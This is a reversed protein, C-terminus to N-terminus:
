IVGFSSILYAGIIAVIFLISLATVIRNRKQPYTLYYISGVLGIPPFYNPTFSSHPFLIKAITYLVTIVTIALLGILRRSTRVRMFQYVAVLWFLYFILYFIFDDPNDIMFM